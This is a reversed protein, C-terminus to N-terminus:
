AATISEVTATAVGWNILNGVTSCIGLCGAADAGALGGSVGGAAVYVSARLATVITNHYDSNTDLMKKVKRNFDRLSSNVSSIDEVAQKFQNEAKGLIELSEKMLKKMIRFQSPVFNRM